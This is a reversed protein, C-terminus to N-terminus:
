RPRTMTIIIIVCSVICSRKCDILSINNNLNFILFYRKTFIQRKTKGLTGLFGNLADRLAIDESVDGEASPIVESLEDYILQTELRRGRDRVRNLALNRTIKCVYAVFRSPRKPPISEWLRLYTDDECEESESASGVIDMAVSYILRGYSEKTAGIAREDRAFYLEIIKADEM